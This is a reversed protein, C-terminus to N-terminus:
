ASMSFWTRKGALELHSKRESFPRKANLGSGLRRLVTTKTTSPFACPVPPPSSCNEEVTVYEFLVLLKGLVRIGCSM